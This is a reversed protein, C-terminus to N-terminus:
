HCSIQDFCGTFILLSHIVKNNYDRSGGWIIVGSAGLAASEGITSILDRQFLLFSVKKKKLYFPEFYNLARDDLGGFCGGAERENM